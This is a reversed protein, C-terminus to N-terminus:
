LLCFGRMVLDEIIDEKEYFQHFWPVNSDDIYAVFKENKKTIVAIEGTESHRMSINPESM